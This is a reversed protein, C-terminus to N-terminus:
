KKQNMESLYQVCVEVVKLQETDTEINEAAEDNILEAELAKETENEQEIEQESKAPAATNTKEVFRGDCGAMSLVLVLCLMVTSIKKM